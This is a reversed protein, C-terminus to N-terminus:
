QCSVDGYSILRHTGDTGKSRKKNEQKFRELKMEKDTM